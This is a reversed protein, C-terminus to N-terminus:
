RNINLYLIQNANVEDKRSEFSRMEEEQKKELQKKERDHRGCLKKREEMFQKVNYQSLERHRRTRDEKDTNESRDIVIKKTDDMSRKAQGKRLEAFDRKQQEELNKIQDGFANIILSKIQDWIIGSAKNKFKQLDEEHRKAIDTSESIHKTVLANIKDKSPSGKLSKVRAIYKSKLDAEPNGTKQRSKKEKTKNEIFSKKGFTEMSLDNVQKLNQSIASFREKDHKKHVLHYEKQHKKFFKSFAKSKLLEDIDVPKIPERDLMGGVASTQRVMQAKSENSSSDNSSSSGSDSKKPTAKANPKAPTQPKSDDKSPAKEITEDVVASVDEDEDVDYVQMKKSREDLISLFKLPQSLMEVMEDLGEPVYTKMKFHCFLQALGIPNCWENRLVVHRYGAQIANFPIVRQAIMKGNEDNVTFRVLALDPFIVKRFRFSESDYYPNISNGYVTKTKFKKRVTDVPLGYMDVEVYTNVKRDSVFQGSIVQVALDAAIIGDVPNEAFPDFQKDDRRMFEPKLLYGCMGNYEFKCQNLQFGLDPTQFNLSVMQSGANWFIQPIFNSSEVRSGKPYIRSLQRKNYNVYDTPSAKFHGFGTSENFSSMNYHLNRQKAEEFGPFPVPQTYIVVSSLLEDINGTSGTYRYNAVAAVVDPDLNKKAPPDESSDGKTTKTTTSGNIKPKADDTGDKKTDSAASDSKIGNQSNTTITGNSDKTPSNATDKSAAANEKETDQETKILKKNKILIKGRLKSPPPLRKGPETPYGDIPKTLLLDGFSELCYQALKRQQKISCHNEFSLIVPYDTAIFAAEKIVEIVDKFLIDSCMAKGHTIIPEEDQGKGDWCDLEICRCGALLVNRYMDVVSKGGFQKGVLYTNHSSNIFYHAIPEDMDKAKLQLKELPVILSDASYFYYQLGEPTILGRGKLVELPEYQDIIAKSQLAKMFPYLLENLRPDRQEENHFTRLQEISLYPAKGGTRNMVIDEIDKRPCLKNYLSMFTSFPFKSPDIVANKKNPLNLAKLSDVVRDELKSPVLKYINKVQINGDADGTCCLKVWSRKIFHDSPANMSIVDHIIKNIGGKWIERSKADSAILRIEKMDVLSYGYVITLLRAESVNPGCEKEILDRVRQDKPLTGNKAENIMFMDLCMGEKNETWSVFFGDSDVKFNTKIVTM